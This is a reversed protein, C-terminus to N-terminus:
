NGGITAVVQVTAGNSQYPIKNDKLGEGNVTLEKIGKCLGNPNKVHINYTTGRIKRTVKFEPWSSPICPDLVIGDYDPKIGAFGQMVTLLTWAATGTLWANKAEGHNPAAKGAIMQSYVYPESKYRAHDPQAAPCISKYYDYARDGMGEQMLALHIWPNNHCFIGGNEKYGPPYSSVEGLEV